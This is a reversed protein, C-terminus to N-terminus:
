ALGSDGARVRGGEVEPESPSFADELDRLLTPQNDKVPFFYDGGAAVIQECVDRQTQLADGMVVRGALDVEALAEKVANLETGKGGATIQSLVVDSHLAYVAVLHVGPIKEGHIGRLTKGDVALPEHPKLGTRSLWEGLVREFASVDLDKFVRHITANSPYRKPKCGLAELLPPDDELREKAWQGVGYKSKVGCLMAAVAIQLVSVLEHVRLHERRFEPLASLAEALTVPYKEGEEM